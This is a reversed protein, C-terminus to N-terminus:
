LIAICFGSTTNITPLNICLLLYRIIIQFIEYIAVLVDKWKLNSTYFIGHVIHTLLTEWVLFFNPM